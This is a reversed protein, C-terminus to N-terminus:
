SINVPNQKGDLQNKPVPGCPRRNDGRQGVEKQEEAAIQNTKDLIFPPVASLPPIEAPFHFFILITVPLVSTKADFFLCLGKSWFDLPSKM